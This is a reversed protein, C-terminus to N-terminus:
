LRALAEPVERVSDLVRCAATFDQEATFDNRIVLCDLGAATASALGRASDEIALAARPEAGFRELARLYPDPAPKAQVCDEINIVFEFYHRISRSAHILDFDARKSTSVVAMRYHHSLQALIDAAGDIEIRESLVLERYRRDRHNRGSSVNHDSLGFQRAWEWCSRGKAMLALYTPQDLPVGLESLCEQTAQFYLRETDVLVGDHDWLLFRRTM